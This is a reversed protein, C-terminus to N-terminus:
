QSRYQPLAEQIKATTQLVNVLQKILHNEGLKNTKDDVKEMRVSQGVSQVRQGRFNVLPGARFHPDIEGPVIHGEWPTIDSLLSTM